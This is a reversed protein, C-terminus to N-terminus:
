DGRHVSGANACTRTPTFVFRACVRLFWVNHRCSIIEQFDIAYLPFRSVIPVLVFDVDFRERPPLRLAASKGAAPPPPAPLTEICSKWKVMGTFLALGASKREQACPSWM